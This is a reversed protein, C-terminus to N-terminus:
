QELIDIFNTPIKTEEPYHAFLKQQLNKLTKPSLTSLVENKFFEMIPPLQSKNKIQEYYLYMAYMVEENTGVCEFPKIGEIGLLEKYLPLLDQNDYLEQHFIKQTDENSLFPRLTTYVFACKPCVGCRRDATTKNSEIIKFNNNCSSFTDFYQSYKVFRKAINIEYMGRLLSFYKLDPSIYKQIYESIDSEFEYSKSRQHNIEIGDLSTNGENASKENSMIIYKYDYLYAWTILVFAIIGSIPVHGNYYWEKNMEFLKPDMTRQMVLRPAWIKKSVTQHLYYDKGFTSTYFPINLKKILEVSVLSDKGWWMAVMPTDTNPSFHTNPSEKDGNVFNIRGKPSLKNTFFFEGLWQTYFKQRFVQQDPTLKGTEIILNKTPYLKYYSIWLALSLHFLLTNIIEPNITTIPSLETSSFDITETFKVEHDFSYSFSAKFSTPDFSYWEFYFNEFAKMGLYLFFLYASLIAM